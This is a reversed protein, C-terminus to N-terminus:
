FFCAPDEDRSAPLFVYTNYVGSFISYPLKLFVGSFHSYRQFIVYIEYSM